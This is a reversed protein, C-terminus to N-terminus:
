VLEFLGVSPTTDTEGEKKDGEEKDDGKVDDTKGKKKEMKARFYSDYCINCRLIYIHVYSIKTLVAVLPLPGFIVFILYPYSLHISPLAPFVSTTLAPGWARIKVNM